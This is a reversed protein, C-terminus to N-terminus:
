FRSLRIGASVTRGPLITANDPEGSQYGLLNEGQLVFSLNSDVARTISARLRTHGNYGRWYERLDGGYLPASPADDNRYLNSLQRRDYQVWDYARSAGVSVSWDQRAWTLSTSLTRAPVGLVRDGERLDGTYRDAVSEVRSAVSSFATNWSFAGHRVRLQAELGRNSIAGVNQYGFAVRSEAGEQLEASQSESVIVQQILGTASQDFATIQLAITRGVFLDFGGEIGSQREPELDADASRMMTERPPTRPPRVGSGFAARWKLTAGGLERVYAAGIMPLLNVNADAVYGSNRELRVGGTVHFRRRLAADVQAVIGADTSWRETVKGAGGYGTTMLPSKQQLASHEAVLSLTGGARDENGFRIATTARATTRNASGRAARMASDVASPVSSFDSAFNDLSYGDIGATFTHTVRQGGAKRLTLGLTYNKLRTRNRPNTRAFESQDSVSSDAQRPVGASSTSLQAIGTIISSGTVKRFGADAVVRTSSTNTYFEGLTTFGVSLHGSRLASGGTYTVAHNQTLAADAFDSSSGGITSRIRLRSGSAFGDHRTVINVVGSMADSGYLAAGQPGRIVEIRDVTEPNIATLLLPNAVGIGDIYVKPYTTGLSSAGRISGYRAISALSTSDWVWMGPVNGDFLGSISSSGFRAIDDSGIVSLATAFPRQVALGASGTVVVRNLEIPSISRTSGAARPSPALVIQDSGAAVPVVPVGALMQDLIEHVTLSDGDARVIRHLPIAESAYSFRVRAVAALRDLADRLSIDHVSLSIRRDLPTAQAHAITAGFLAIGVVLCRVRVTIPRV